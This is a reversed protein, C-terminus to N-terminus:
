KVVSVNDRQNVYDYFKNSGVLILHINKELGSGNNVLSWLVKATNLPRSSRGFPM